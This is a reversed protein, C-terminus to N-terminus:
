WFSNYNIEEKTQKKDKTEVLDKTLLNIMIIPSNLGITQKCRNAYRYRDKIYVKLM